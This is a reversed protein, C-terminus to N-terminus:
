GRIPDFSGLVQLEPPKIAASQDTTKVARKINQQRTPVTQIRRWSIKNKM